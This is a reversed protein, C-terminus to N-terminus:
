LVYTNSHFIYLAAYYTYHTTIIYHGSLILINNSNSDIIVLINCHLVIERNVCHNLHRQPINQILAQMM